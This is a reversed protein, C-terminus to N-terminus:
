NAHAAEIHVKKGKVTYHVPTVASFLELFEQFSEKELYFTYRKGSDLGTYSIEVGYWAELKDIISSLPENYMQLSKGIWINSVSTNEKELTHNLDETNIIAHQSPGMIFLQKNEKVNLVAIKGEKLSIEINESAIARFNFSTGLVEIKIKDANIIFKKGSPMVDFFLEGSANVERKDINYKKSIALTSKSNLWIFTGDSLKVKKKENEKTRITTYQNAFDQKEPESYFYLFSSVAAIVLAVSAAAMVKYFKLRRAKNRQLAIKAQIKEWVLQKDPIAVSADDIFIWEKKLELFLSYNDRGKLWEEVWQNEEPSTQKRCYKILLEYPIEM